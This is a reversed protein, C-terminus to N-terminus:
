ITELIIEEDNLLAPTFTCTNSAQIKIFFSNGNGPDIGMQWLSGRSVRVKKGTLINTTLTTDGAGPPSPAGPITAFNNNGGVVWYFQTVSSSGGGGGGSSGFGFASNVGFNM